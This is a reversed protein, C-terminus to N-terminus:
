VQSRQRTNAAFHLKVDRARDRLARDEVSEFSPVWHQATRDSVVDRLLPTREQPEKSASLIEGM